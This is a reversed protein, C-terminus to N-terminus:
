DDGGVRPHETAPCRQGPPTWTTGAWAPTSGDVVRPRPGVPPRGRGRPPAGRASVGSYPCLRDDGGVRPHERTPPRAWVEIQDDGGVRPHEWRPGARSCRRRTTGAWAPTSRRPPLPRDRLGLRGRGRPPAGWRGLVGGPCSRDDGGVRPHEWARRRTGAGTKTTGAWAPTSRQGPHQRDGWARRGRGRPPAGTDAWDEAWWLLDDGGVRPHKGTVCNM